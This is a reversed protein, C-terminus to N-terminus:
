VGVPAAPVQCSAARASALALLAHATIDSRLLDQVPSAAFAGYAMQPDLAAGIRGEVLQMRELFELGREVARRAWAPREHALAEVALATLATEPVPTM